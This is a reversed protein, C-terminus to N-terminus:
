IHQVLQKLEQENFNYNESCFHCLLTAQKEKHLIDLLEAKGISILAKSVKKKTCNCYYSIEKKSQLVLNANEFIMDLIDEISNGGLLLNTISPFKKLREQLLAEVEEDASPMLQIIYGGGKAISHDKTASFDKEASVDLAVITPVQESQVFYYALDEDIEGTVLDISSLYPEKLGMDRIVSLSGNGIIGSVDPEGDHKLPAEANENFVYGKVNSTVDSTAVVGELPGNSRITLTILENSNKLMAGMLSSATLLKGLAAAATISTNHIRKAERVINTTDAIFVRVGGNYATARLIYDNM